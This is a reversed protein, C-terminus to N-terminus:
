EEDKRASSSCRAKRREFPNERHKYSANDESKGGMVNKEILVATIAKLHPKVMDLLLANDRLAWAMLLKQTKKLDGGTKEVAEKIKSSLFSKAM